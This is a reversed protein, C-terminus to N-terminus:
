VEEDLNVEDKPKELKESLFEKLDLIQDFAHVQGKYQSLKCLDLDQLSVVNLAALNIYEFSANRHEKILELLEVTVSNNLFEELDKRRM